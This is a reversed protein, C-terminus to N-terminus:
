ITFGIVMIDDVQFFQKQWHDLYNELKKQQDKLPLDHSEILLQRFQKKTLKKLANGGIQDPYGDSFLFIKDGPELDIQQHTFPTDQKVYRGVPMRDAKFELIEGNRTIWLPNNAGAYLISKEKKNLICIAIDMGDNITLDNDSGSLTLIIKERLQNLIEDPTQEDSSSVIQNLFAVGLMSMFAGPVGHGTCDAGALIIKDYKEEIWFFDGSVIDRPRFFIFSEPLLEKFKSKSPLLAGQIRSAYRISSEINNAQQRIKKEAEVLQTIDTAYSQCISYESIGRLMFRIHHEGINITVSERKNSRIFNKIDFDHLFTLTAGIDCGAIFEPFYERAADNADILKLDADFRFVPEPNLNAFLAMSNAKDRTKVLDTIDSAYLQCAKLDPIGKTEFFLTKNGIQEQHQFVIGKRICNILLIPDISPLYERINKGANFGDSFIQFVANNFAVIELKENLRIVPNPNFRAFLSLSKEEQQQLASNDPILYDIKWRTNTKCHNCFPIWDGKVITIENQGCGKCRIKASINSVDGPHLSLKALVSSTTSVLYPVIFTLIVQLLNISSFNGSFILDSQNILNLIIGVVLSVIIARRVIPKLLSITFVTKIM